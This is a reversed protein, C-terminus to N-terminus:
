CSIDEHLIDLELHQIELTNQSRFVEPIEAKEEIEIGTTNIQVELM